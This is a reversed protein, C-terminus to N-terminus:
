LPPTPWGATSRRPSRVRAERACSFKVRSMLAPASRGNAWPSPQSISRGSSNRSSPLRRKRRSPLPITRRARRMPSIRNREGLEHSDNLDASQVQVTMNYTGPKSPKVDVGFIGPRSPGPSSFTETGGPGDLRVDVKGAKMPRFNDLRTFHVAFRGGVGAVLAPYEMFLETRATWHSVSLGEPKEAVPKPQEKAQQKGCSALGMAAVIVILVSKMAVGRGRRRSGVRNASRQGVSGVGVPPALSQRTVRYSDLLELIGVEGEQYALRTIRSLDEGLQNVENRYQAIAAKRLQLAEAAGTVEARIRRELASQRATARDQEARWRAVETQGKNFLPLPVTIGIASSTERMGPAVDGRKVGATAMPEPYRLREAARGELRYREIQRQEALYESRHALARQVLLDVPPLVAITELNGTVRDVLTTPPLFGSVVARAQAVDTRAMALQSRYEALEREARLRDYRSGEGEQERTRLVRIVEELDRLGDGIAAERRQSTLLRYFALRVDSRLSWLLAASEAETAGVAAVGAQKLFGRRGTIPLQQEIQYFAAYGAGERSFWM